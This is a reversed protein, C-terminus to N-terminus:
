AGSMRRWVSAYVLLKDNSYPTNEQKAKVAEKAVRSADAYDRSTTRLRRSLQKLLLYVRVPNEEFYETGDYELVETGDELAMAAASRPCDEIVGMEGFSQKVGIVALKTSGSFIGVSGREVEYMTGAPDGEAFIVDGKQFTLTKM